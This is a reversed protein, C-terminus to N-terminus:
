QPPTTTFTDGQTHGMLMPLSRCSYGRLGVRYLKDLTRGMVDDNFWESKMVERILLDVPKIAMFEPFLYLPRDVFGLANLVMAVVAEDCTVKQRPDVGVIRDIEGVLNIERCVASVIGLHELTKSAFDAADM